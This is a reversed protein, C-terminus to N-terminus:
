FIFISAVELPLNRTFPILIINNADDDENNLQLLREM